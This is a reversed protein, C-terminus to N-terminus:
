FLSRHHLPKWQKELEPWRYDRSFDAPKGRFGKVQLKVLKVPFLPKERDRVGGCDEPGNYTCFLAAASGEIMDDLTSRFEIEALEDACGSYDLDVTLKEESLKLSVALGSCYARNGQSYKITGDRNLATHLSRTFVGLGLRSDFADGSIWAEHM